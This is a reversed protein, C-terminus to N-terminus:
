INYYKFIKNNYEDKKNIDEVEIIGKYKNYKIQKNMRIKEELIETKGITELYIDAIFKKYDIKVDIVKYFSFPLYKIEKEEKYSSIDEIIIGNSIWNSQYCNKIRFIVSFKLFTKYLTLSNNRGSIKKALNEDESTSIFTSFTIVKGIAREYQIISSYFLKTGSYVEYKDKTFYEKNEKAFLNLHYMLRSIFYAVLKYSILNSNM